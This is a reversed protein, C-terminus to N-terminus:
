LLKVLPNIKRKERDVLTCNVVRIFLPERTHECQVENHSRRYCQMEHEIVKRVMM